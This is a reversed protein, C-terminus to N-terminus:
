SALVVAEVFYPKFPKPKSAPCAPQISMCGTPESNERATKSVGIAPSFVHNRLRMISPQGFRISSFKTAMAQGERTQQEMADGWIAPGHSM